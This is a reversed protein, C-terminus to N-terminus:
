TTQIYVDLASQKINQHSWYQSLSIATLYPFWTSHSGLFVKNFNQLNTSPIWCCSICNQSFKTSEWQPYSRLKTCHLVPNPAWYPFCRTTYWHLIFNDFIIALCLKLDHLLYPKAYMISSMSSVLKRWNRLSNPWRHSSQKMCSQRVHRGLFHGACFAHHCFCVWFM